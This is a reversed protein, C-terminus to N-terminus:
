PRLVSIGFARVVDTLLADRMTASATVRPSPPLTTTHDSLVVVTSPVIEARPPASAPLPPTTSVEPFTSTTPESARTSALAALPKGPLQSNSGKLMVITLEKGPSPLKLPPLGLTTVAFPFSEVTSAPVMEVASVLPVLTM